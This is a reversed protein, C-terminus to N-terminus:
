GAEGLFAGVTAVAEALGVRQATVASPFADLLRSPLPDLM